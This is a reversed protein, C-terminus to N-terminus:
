SKGQLFRDIVTKPSGIIRLTKTRSTQGSVLEINSRPVGLTKSLFRLLEENAAGDIPPSKLKVKIAGNHEGVFETKSSRPIVRVQLIAIGTQEDFEVMPM